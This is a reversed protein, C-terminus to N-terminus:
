YEHWAIEEIADLLPKAADAKAAGADGTRSVPDDPRIATAVEGDRPSAITETSNSGRRDPIACHVSVLTLGLDRIGDLAGHLAAQDALPGSLVTTGDSECTAALGGLADRLREDLHGKIRIEHVVPERQDVTSAHTATM